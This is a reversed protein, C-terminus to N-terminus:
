PVVVVPVSSDLTIGNGLQGYSNSGWCYAVNARTVACTTGVGVDLTAFALGGSVPVPTTSHTTDGNGLQGSQNAGWCYAKGARTLGCTHETGVRVGSFTLGGSVAVPTTTPNITGDGLQGNDNNGWCYAKGATTVACTHFVAASISAFTLSGSVAVPSASCHNNSACLEPGTTTGVGLQGQGNYGWCYAVNATTVGCAYTNGASVAIFTLGGLVAVATPSCACSTVPGISTGIGLEGDYNNGWCYAAGAPTLGCTVSGGASVTALTVGGSVAVPTDASGIRGIDGSDEEGWCYAAGGLTVACTYFRGANLNAFSLGGHVAVPTTADLTSSDGLQVFANSGWCYAAGAPTLGCSHLSGPSVSALPFFVAPATPGNGGSCAVLALGMLIGLRGRMGSERLM